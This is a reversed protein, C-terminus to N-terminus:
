TPQTTCRQRVSAFSFCYWSMRSAISSPSTVASARMSASSAARCPPRVAAPAREEHHGDLLDFRGATSSRSARPASARGARRAHRSRARARRRSPIGPPPPPGARRRPPGWRARGRRCSRREVEGLLVARVVDHRGQQTLPPAIRGRGREGAARPALQWSRCGNSYDACSDTSRM